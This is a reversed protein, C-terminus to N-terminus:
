CKFMQLILFILVNFMQCNGEPQRHFHSFQTEFAQISRGASFSSPWHSNCLALQLHCFPSGFFKFETLLSLFSSVKRTRTWNQDFFALIELKANKLSRCLPNSSYNWFTNKIYLTVSQSCVASTSHLNLPKSWNKDNDSSSFVGQRKEYKRTEIYM